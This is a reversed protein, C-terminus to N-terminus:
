GIASGARMRAVLASAARAASGPAYAFFLMPEILEVEMVIPGDSTEVLDIRTLCPAGASFRTAAELAGRATTLLAPSPEEATMRAGLESQTRFDGAKPRKRVAHSLEEEVLILSWEGEVIEPM